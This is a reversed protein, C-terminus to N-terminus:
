LQADMWELLLRVDGLWMRMTKDSITASKGEHVIRNREGILEKISTYPKPHAADFGQGFVVNALTTLQANTSSSQLIPALRPERIRLTQEVAVEVATTAEVVANTEQGMRASLLVARRYTRWGLPPQEGATIRRAITRVTGPALGALPPSPFRITLTRFSIRLPKRRNGPVLQAPWESARKGIGAQPHRQIVAAFDVFKDLIEETAAAATKFLHRALVVDAPKASSPSLSMKEYRDDPAQLTAVMDIADIAVLTPVGAVAKAIVAHEDAIGPFAARLTIDNVKGLRAKTRGALGPDIILQVPFDKWTFRITRSV